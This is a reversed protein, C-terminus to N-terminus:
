PRGPQAFILRSEPKWDLADELHHALPAPGGLEEILSKLFEDQLHRLRMVNHSEAMDYIAFLLPGRARTYAIGALAAM